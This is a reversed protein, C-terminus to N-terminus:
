KKKAHKRSRTGQQIKKKRKASLANSVVKPTTQLFDAIEINSFGALHLPLAKEPILAGKLSNLLIMVLLNEIRTDENKM